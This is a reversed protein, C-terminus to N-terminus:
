PPKTDHVNGPSVSDPEVPSCGSLPDGPGLYTWSTSPAQRIAVALVGKKGRGYRAPRPSHGPARGAPCIIRTTGRPPQIAGSM